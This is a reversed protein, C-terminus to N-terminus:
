AKQLTAELGGEPAQGLLRRAESQVLAKNLLPRLAANTVVLDLKMFGRGWAQQLKCHPVAGVSEEVSMHSYTEEAFQKLDEHTRQGISSGRELLAKILVWARHHDPPGLSRGRGLVRCRTGYSRGAEKIQVVVAQEVKVMWVVFLIGKLERCSQLCM